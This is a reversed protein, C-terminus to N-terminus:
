AEGDLLAMVSKAEAKRGLAGARELADLVDDFSPRVCLTEGPRPIPFRVVDDTVGPRPDNSYGIDALADGDWVVYGYQRAPKPQILNVNRGSILKGDAAWRTAVKSDPRDRDIAYGVLSGQEDIFAIYGTTTSVTTEIPENLPWTPNTAQSM